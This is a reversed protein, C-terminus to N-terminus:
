SIFRLELLINELHRNIEEKTIDERDGKFYLTIPVVYEKAELLFVLIRFSKSKGRPIDKSKVRAKYVNHGLHTHQEKHFNDLLSIVAEKLHRYKKTHPQLQRNFYPLIIPRYM